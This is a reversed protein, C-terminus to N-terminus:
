SIKHYNVQVVTVMFNKFILVLVPMSTLQCLKQAAGNLKGCTITGQELRDHIKEFTYKRTLRQQKGQNLINKLGILELNSIKYFYILFISGMIFPYSFFTWWYSSLFVIFARLIEWWATVKFNIAFSILTYICTIPPIVMKFVCYVFWSNFKVDTPPIKQYAKNLAFSTNNLFNVINHRNSIQVGNVLIYFVSALIGHNRTLISVLNSEFYFMYPAFMAAYLSPFGLVFVITFSISYATHFAHTEFQQRQRNYTFPVV